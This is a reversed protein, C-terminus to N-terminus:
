LSVRWFHRISLLCLLLSSVMKLNMVIKCRVVVLFSRINFNVLLFSNLLFVYEEEISSAFASKLIEVLLMTSAILAFRLPEATV